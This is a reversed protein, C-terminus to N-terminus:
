GGLFDFTDLYGLIGENKSQSSFVPYIGSHSQIEEKSIVRGRGLDCIQDIRKQQWDPPTTTM